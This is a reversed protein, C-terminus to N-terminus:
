LNEFLFEFACINKIPMPPECKEVEYVYMKAASNYHYSGQLTIQFKSKEKPVIHMFEDTYVIKKPM